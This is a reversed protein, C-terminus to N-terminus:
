ARVSAAPPLFVSEDISPLDSIEKVTYRTEDVYYYRKDHRNYEVTLKAEYRQDAVMFEQTYVDNGMCHSGECAESAEERMKDELEDRADDLSAYVHFEARSTFEDLANKARHLESVAATIALTLEAYIPSDTPKM